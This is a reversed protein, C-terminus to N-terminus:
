IPFVLGLCFSTSTFRAVFSSQNKWRVLGDKVLAEDVEADVLWQSGEAPDDWLREYTTISLPSGEVSMYGHGASYRGTSSSERGGGRSLRSANALRLSLGGFMCCSLVLMMVATTVVAM